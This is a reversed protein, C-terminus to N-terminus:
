LEADLSVYAAANNNGCLVFGYGLTLGTAAIAVRCTDLGYQTAGATAARAATDYVAVNSFAVTPYGRMTVPYKIFAYGATTSTAHGSGFGVYNGSFGALRAYYRQCLALETQAQRWEFPTAVTGVELQVGTLYFTAGTTGIVNAQTSNSYYNGNQWANL